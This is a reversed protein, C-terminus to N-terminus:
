HPIYKKIEKVTIKEIVKDVGDEEAHTGRYNDKGKLQRRRDCEKDSRREAM